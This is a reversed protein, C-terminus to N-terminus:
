FRLVLNAGAGWFHENVAITQAAEQLLTQVPLFNNQISQVERGSGSMHLYTYKSWLDLFLKGILKIQTGGKVALFYGDLRENTSQQGVVFFPSDNYYGKWEFQYRGWAYPVGKGEVYWQGPLKLPTGVVVRAGLYPGTWWFRQDM